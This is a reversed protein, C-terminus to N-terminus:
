HCKTLFTIIITFFMWRLHQILFINKFNKFFECSFVKALTEKKIVNRGKVLHTKTSLLPSTPKQDEQILVYSQCSFIQITDWYNVQNFTKTNGNEDESFYPDIIRYKDITAVSFNVKQELNIM